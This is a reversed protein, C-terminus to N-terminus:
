MSASFGSTGGCADWMIGEAGIWLARTRPLSSQGGAVDRRAKEPTYVRTATLKGVDNGAWNWTRYLWSSRPQLRASGASEMQARCILHYHLFTAGCFASRLPQHSARYHLINRQLRILQLIGTKGYRPSFLFATYCLVWLGKPTGKLCQIQLKLANYSPTSIPKVSFSNVHGQHSDYKHLM